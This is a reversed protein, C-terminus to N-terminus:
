ARKPCPGQYRCLVCIKPQDCPKFVEVVGNKGYPELLAMKELDQIIRARVRRLEVNSIIFSMLGEDALHVIYVTIDEPACDYEQNGWLAYFGLQLNKDAGGSAGIKWDAITLGTGDRFAIDVKGQAAFLADDVSVMREVRASPRRGGFRLFEFEDNTLFHTLATVLREEADEYLADADGLHYYFELLCTPAHQQDDNNQFVRNTKSFDRDQRFIRVVWDILGQDDAGVHDSKLGM